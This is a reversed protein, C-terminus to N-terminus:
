QFTARDIFKEPDFVVVDAAAGSSLSGAPLRMREAPATTMKALASQLDYGRERLIRLARPFTGAIRPHAGEGTFLADSAIICAPNAICNEVEDKDMVHAVVLSMPEERRMEALTEFTLRRGKFKGSVAELCEPGKGRWREVFGDDYVASGAKACFADYPYCDFAVDVGAQAAREIEMECEQTHSMTMSGLHSIQLRVGNERSLSIAERVAEVCRDDDYRIHVTVIRDGFEATVAALSSIEDYSAGPAYELGLSLGMAGARLSERLLGSMRAIEEPTSPSYRDTRGVQERLGACNGVLYALHLWPKPRSGASREFPPGSGCNGAVATTVGQRILCHQVTDPDAFFEDHMHIDVFGPAVCLGEADFIFDAGSDVPSVSEIRGDRIAVSARGPPRGTM